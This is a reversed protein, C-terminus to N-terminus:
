QMVAVKRGLAVAPEFCYGDRCGQRSVQAFIKDRGIKEEQLVDLVDLVDLKALAKLPTSVTKQAAIGQGVLTSTPCYPHKVIQEVVLRERLLLDDGVYCM